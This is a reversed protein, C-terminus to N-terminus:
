AAKRDRRIFRYVADRNTLGMREILGKEIGWNLTRNITSKSLDLKATAQKATFTPESMLAQALKEFQLKELEVSQRQLPIRISIDGDLVAFYFGDREGIRLPIKAKALQKRTRSVSQRVRDASAPTFHEDPCLASFLSGIRLPLYFDRLLVEVMQHATRGPVLVARGVLQGSRLDLRPSQKDGLIYMSQTPRDNFETAILDRFGEYPTGFYLHVFLRRDYKIKLVNLDALRVSEWDRNKIALERMREIPKLDASRLGEVILKRKTVFFQDNSDASLSGASIVKEALILCRSAKELDREHTFVDACLSHCISQIQRHGVDEALLLNEELLRLAREHQRTEVFAIALNTQGVLRSASDLGFGLYEEFLPIATAYDWRHCHGFAQYLLGEPAQTADVSELLRIAEPAAGSRLLLIAYEAVEAPSAAEALTKPYAIPALISLGMELLGSRRCMKAVPLRWDRPIRSGTLKALRDAAAKANGDRIDQECQQLLLDFRKM